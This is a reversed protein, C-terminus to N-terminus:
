SMHQLVEKKFSYPTNGSIMFEVDFDPQNTRVKTAM